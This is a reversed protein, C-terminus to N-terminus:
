FTLLSFLIVVKFRGRWSPRAIQILAIRYHTIFIGNTSHYGEPYGKERSERVHWTGPQIEELPLSVTLTAARLTAGLQM